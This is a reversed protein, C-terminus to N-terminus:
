SCACGLVTFLKRMVGAIVVYWVGCISILYNRNILLDASDLNVDPVNCIATLYKNIVQVIKRNRDHLLLFLAVRADSENRSAKGLSLVRMEGAFKIRGSPIEMMQMINNYGGLVNLELINSEVKM